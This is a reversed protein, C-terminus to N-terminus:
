QLRQHGVRSYIAKREIINWHHNTPPVWAHRADCCDIRNDGLTATVDVRSSSLLLRHGNRHATGSGGLRGLSTVDDLSTVDRRLLLTATATATAHHTPTM